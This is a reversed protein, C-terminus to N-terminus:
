MREQQAKWRSAELKAVHCLVVSWLVGMPLVKDFDRIPVISSWIVGVIFISLPELLGEHIDRGNLVCYRVFNILIAPLTYLAWFVIAGMFPVVLGFLAPELGRLKVLRGRQQYALFASSIMLLPVIFFVPLLPFADQPGTGRLLRLSDELAVSWAIGLAAATWLLTSPVGITRKGLIRELVPTSTMTM